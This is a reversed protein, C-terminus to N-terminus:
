VAGGTAQSLRDPALAIALAHQAQHAVMRWGLSNVGMRSTMVLIGNLPWTIRQEAVNDTM